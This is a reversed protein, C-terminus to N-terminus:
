LTGSKKVENSLGISQNVLRDTTMASAITKVLQDSSLQLSALQQNEPTIVSAAAENTLQPVRIVTYPIELEDVMKVAYQHAFLLNQYDAGYLQRVGAEDVDDCIGAAALMVIRSPAHGDDVLQVLGLVLEDVPAQRPALWCLVSAAPLQRSFQPYVAVPAPALENKLAATLQDEHQNVIALPAQM